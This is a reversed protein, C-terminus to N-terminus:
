LRYVFKTSHHLENWVVENVVVVIWRWMVIYSYVHPRNWGEYVGLVILIV